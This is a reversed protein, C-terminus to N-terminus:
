KILVDLVFQNRAKSLACFTVGVPFICSELLLCNTQFPFPIPSLGLTDHFLYTFKGSAIRVIGRISSQMIDAIGIIGEDSEDARFLFRFLNLFEESYVQTLRELQFERLFLGQDGM